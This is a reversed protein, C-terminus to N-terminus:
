GGRFCRILQHDPPTRTGFLLTDFDGRVVLYALSREISRARRVRRGGVGMRMKEFVAPNRWSEMGTAM